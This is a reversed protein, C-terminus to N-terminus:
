LSDRCAAPLWLYYLGPALSLKEAFESDILGLRGISKMTSTNYINDDPYETRRYVVIKADEPLDAIRKAQLVADSMYGIKDILGLRLAEEALYVRATAIKELNDKAVRRHMAVLNLFRTGLDGIINQMMTREEETTERFPSGMDKNKGSKAIVVDVGIKDMLDMVEPKIFIVGISGTVTTPHAMIFDAPLSIYYGGSAALGMMAAVIKVGTRKRFSVMEHYLIDSATTSGGPSDIEFLVAKIKKDKEAKKLQSVIEEVMSPKRHFLTEKPENSIMGRVPIVLIKGKGEGELTFERLPETSDPFLKIKPGCGVLCLCLIILFMLVTTIPSRNQM